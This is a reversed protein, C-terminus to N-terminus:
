LLGLGSSGLVSGFTTASPMMRAVHCSLSVLLTQALTCWGLPATVTSLFAIAQSRSSATPCWFPGVPPSLSAFVVKTWRSFVVPPSAGDVPQLETVLRKHRVRGVVEEVLRGLLDGEERRDLM